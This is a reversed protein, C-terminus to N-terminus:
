LAIGGALIVILAAIAVLGCLFTLVVIWVLTIAARTIREKNTTKIDSQITPYAGEIATRLTRVEGWSLVLFWPKRALQKYVKQLEISSKM